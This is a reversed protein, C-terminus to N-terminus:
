HTHLNSKVDLDCCKDDISLFTLRGYKKKSCLRVNEINMKGHRHLYRHRCKFVQNGRKGAYPFLLSFNSMMNTQELRVSGQGAGQEAHTEETKEM